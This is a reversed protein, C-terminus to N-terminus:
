GQKKKVSQERSSAPPTDCRLKKPPMGHLRPMKTKTIISLSITRGERGGEEEEERQKSDEREIEGKQRGGAHM